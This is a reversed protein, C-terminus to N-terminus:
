QLFFFFGSFIGAFVIIFKKMNRKKTIFELLLIQFCDVNKDTIKKFYCVRIIIEKCKKETKKKPYGPLYLM